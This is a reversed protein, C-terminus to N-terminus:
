GRLLNFAPITFTRKPTFKERDPSLSAGGQDGESHTGPRAHHKIYLRYQFIFNKWSHSSGDNRKVQSAAEGAIQIGKGPTTTRRVATM